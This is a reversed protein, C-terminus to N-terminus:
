GTRSWTVILVGRGRAGERERKGRQREKSARDSVRKTTGTIIENNNNQKPTHPTTHGTVDGHGRLLLQVGLQQHVGGLRAGLYAGM